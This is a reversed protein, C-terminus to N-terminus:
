KSILITELWSRLEPERPWAQVRVQAAMLVQLNAPHVHTCAALHVSAKPKGQLWQLLEEAAEVSVGDRLTAVSKSYSIPM